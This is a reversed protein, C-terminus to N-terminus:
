TEEMIPGKSRSRYLELYLKLTEILEPSPPLRLKRVYELARYNKWGLKTILRQRYAKAYVPDYIRKKPHHQRYYLAYAQGKLSHYRRQQALRRREKVEPRARYLRNKERYKETHSRNRDRIRQEAKHAQYYNRAYEKWKEPNRSVYERRHALIRERNERYLKRSTARHQAKIKEHRVPDHYYRSWRAKQKAKDRYM